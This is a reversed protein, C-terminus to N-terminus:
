KDYNREQKENSSKVAFYGTKKSGIREILGAEILRIIDRQITKRNVQLREALQEINARELSIINFIDKQRASLPVNLPVNLPVSAGNAKQKAVLDAYNKSKFFIIRFYKEDVDLRFIPAKVKQCNYKMRAFGSGIKEIMGARSFLDAMIKNRRFTDREIKFWSPKVWVNTITLKDPYIRLINNHGSEFYDRHIVSNIVAEKIAELPYEFIDERQPKKTIKYAVRINKELFKMVDEVIEILSGTIEKRDIIDTGEENKFLVCTYVSHSIFKQPEKAFFLVGANNFQMVKNKEAVGLDLLIKEDSIRKSIRARELFADLKSKDFDPPYKAKKNIQEDYKIKGEGIILDIISDRDMKQSNAGQRLYFGSSCSYPKNKGEEVEVVVVSGVDEISIELAPDCNQAVDQIQSKLRNTIEIGKAKGKDTIGLFIRGGESNAFAVLEKALGKPEFAEKFEIKLGEGAQLIFNLEDKNM